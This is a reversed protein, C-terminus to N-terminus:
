AEIENEKAKSLKLTKLIMANQTENFIEYNYMKYSCKSSHIVCQKTVYDQERRVDIVCYNQAKQTMNGIYPHSQSLMKRENAVCM